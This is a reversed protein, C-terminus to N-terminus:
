FLRFRTTRTLANGCCPSARRPFRVHQIAYRFGQDLAEHAAERVRADDALGLYNNACFNLAPGASTGIESGQPTTIVREQKYLGAQRIEALEQALEEKFAFM